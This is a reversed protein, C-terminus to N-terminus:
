LHHTSIGSANGLAAQNSRDVSVKNNPFLAPAAAKDVKSGDLSGYFDVTQFINM